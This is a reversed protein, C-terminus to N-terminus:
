RLGVRAVTGAGAFPENILNSEIMRDGGEHDRAPRDADHDRIAV